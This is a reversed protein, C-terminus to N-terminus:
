NVRQGRAIGVLQPGVETEIQGFAQRFGQLARVEDDICGGGERVAQLPLDALDDFGIAVVVVAAQVAVVEVVQLQHQVYDAVHLM